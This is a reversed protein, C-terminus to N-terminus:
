FFVGDGIGARDVRISRLAAGLAEDMGFDVLPVAIDVADHM